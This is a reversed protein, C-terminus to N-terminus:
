SYFSRHAIFDVCFGTHIKFLILNHLHIEAIINSFKLSSKGWLCLASTNGLCFFCFAYEYKRSTKNQCLSSRLLTKCAPLLISLYTDCCFLTWASKYNEIGKTRHQQDNYKVSIFWRWRWQAEAVYLWWKESSVIHWAQPEHHVDMLMNLGRLLFNLTIIRMKCKLFSHSLSTIINGFIALLIYLSLLNLGLTHTHAYGSLWTSQLSKNSSCFTLDTFCLFSNLFLFAIHKEM